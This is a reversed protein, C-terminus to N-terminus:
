KPIVVGKDSPGTLIQSPNEKLSDALGKISDATKTGARTLDNVSSLTTDLSSLTTGMQKGLAPLEAMFKDFQSGSGKLVPYPEDALRMPPAQDANDTALEIYSQGTIGQSEIVATTAAHIPTGAKVEIDAKVLDNRDPSLRLAVIKGVDIGKYKVLSEDNLGAVPDTFYITYRDHRSLDHTGTLWISFAVLVLLVLSVFVGVTFYKADKEM